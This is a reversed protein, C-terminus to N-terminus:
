ERTSREYWVVVAEVRHRPADTKGRAGNVYESMTHEVELAGGPKVMEGPVEVEWPAVVDGPAWGARDYKWTGGQPRCPNLYNDMKWLPRYFERGNVRLTRKMEMFEAANGTNPSMGHGTTVVRVKAGTAGEPVRLVRREFFASIPAEPNGIEPMGSWLKEVRVARRGGGGDAPAGPYFDFAVSVLWGEGYTVCEQVIKVKGRLLPRFDTVDVKWEYGRHYPTIYRVLEFTEGSETVISVSALRDWPDFRTEPKDLRLTCIIRGFERNDAPFEVSAENKTHEQDNLVREMAVVRTPPANMAAARDEALPKGGEGPAVRLDDILVDGASAGNRAGLVVRGAMPAAGAVFVRELVREGDITVSVEAGGCVFEIRVIAAHPKEDRWDLTTVKKVIEWGDWHISVEHQPRDYVNGSGKFPDRNPPNSADFGIGLGRAVNPAEWGFPELAVANENVGPGGAAASAAIVGEPVKGAEPEAALLPSDAALLAVGFGETGTNVVFTFAIEITGTAPIVGPAVAVCSSNSWSELLYLKGDQVKPKPMRKAADGGAWLGWDALVAAEDGPPPNADFTWTTPPAPEAHLPGCGMVIAALATILRRFGPTNM